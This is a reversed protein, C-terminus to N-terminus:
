SLGPNANGGPNDEDQGESYTDEAFEHGEATPSHPIAASPGPQDNPSLLSVKGSTSSPNAGTGQPPKPCM